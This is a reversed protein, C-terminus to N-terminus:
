DGEDLISNIKNYRIYSSYVGNKCNEIIMGSIITMLGGSPNSLANEVYTAKLNNIQKDTLMDMLNRLEGSPTFSGSSPNPLPIWGNKQTLKQKGSKYTNTM